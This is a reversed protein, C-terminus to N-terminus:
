ALKMRESNLQLYKEYQTKSDFRFVPQGSPKITIYGGAKSLRKQDFPDNSYSIERYAKMKLGREQKKKEMPQFGHKGFAM